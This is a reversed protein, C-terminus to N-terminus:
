VTRRRKTVPLQPEANDSAIERAAICQYGYTRLLSKLIRALRRVEPANYTGPVPRLRLEYETM